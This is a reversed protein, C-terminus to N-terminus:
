CRICVVGAEPFHSAVRGTLCVHGPSWCVLVPGLWSHGLDPVLSLVPALAPFEPAHAVGSWWTLEVLRIILICVQRPFVSPREGAQGELGRGRRLLLYQKWETVKQYDGPKGRHRWIHIHM